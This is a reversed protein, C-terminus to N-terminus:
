KSLERRAARLEGPSFEFTLLLVFRVSLPTCVLLRCRFLSPLLKRPGLFWLWLALVLALSLETRGHPWRCVHSARAVAFAHCCAARRQSAPADTRPSEDLLPPRQCASLRSSESWSWCELVALVCFYLSYGLLPGLALSCLLSVFVGDCFNAAGPELHGM